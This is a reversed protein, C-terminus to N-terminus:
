ATKGAAGAREFAATIEGPGAGTALLLRLLVRSKYPDLFGAGILGRDLLDSESGAFGYMRRLVPGAGTRSALVVPVRAALAELPGVLAAPVHGAGFAAVVLGDVQGDLARVIQGDDDLSMPVVAVRATVPEAPAKVTFRGAPRTLVRPDGEVVQGVPGASPSAFATISTSHAKRVYRAAHIQDGFVVVCGLGRASASAATQVAALLNAPGDDGALTPNRMAGTVIVPAEHDHLLDLLYSTEEITDTGQTVVAGDVGDAIRERIARSVAIVDEFAVSAGPVNTVDHVEIEIGARDLDPVAALLQAGSLAPVVGGTGDGSMAITGGLSFVAVKPRTSGATGTM